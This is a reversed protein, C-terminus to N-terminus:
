RSSSCKPTNQQHCSARTSWRVDSSHVLSLPEHWCAVSAAVCSPTQLFQWACRFSPSLCFCTVFVTKKGMSMRLGPTPQPHHEAMVQICELALAARVTGNPGGEGM